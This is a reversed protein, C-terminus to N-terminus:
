ISAESLPLSFIRGPFLHERRSGLSVEKVLRHLEDLPVTASLIYCARGDVTGRNLEKNSSLIYSEEESTEAVIFALPSVKGGWKLQAM